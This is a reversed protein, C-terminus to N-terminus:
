DMKKKQNDFNFLNYNSYDFYNRTHIKKFDFCGYIQKSWGGVINVLTDLVLDSLKETSVVALFKRGNLKLSKLVSFARTRIRKDAYVKGNPM